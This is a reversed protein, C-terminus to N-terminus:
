AVFANGGMRRRIKNLAVEKLQRVRETSLGMNASVEDLSREQQGDLGFLQVIIASERPEMKGLAERLAHKVEDHEFSHDPALADDDAIVEQLTCDEMGERVPSSLSCVAYSSGILTNVNSVSEDLAEAIEDGTPLREEQQLFTASFENIRHLLLAKSEPLRVFRSDTAIASLISRQIWYVAYSIFRFGRTPDFHEAAKILGINGESIVDLLEMGRVQYNKAVTVVFRLNCQVLRDLAQRDGKQICRGLDAEEEKSLQPYKRIDKMYMQVADSEHATISQNVEIKRM